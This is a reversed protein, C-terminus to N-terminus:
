SQFGLSGERYREHAYDYNPVHKSVVMIAAFAALDCIWKKTAIVMASSLGPGDKVAEIYIKGPMKTSQVIV